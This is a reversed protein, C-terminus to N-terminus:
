QQGRLFNNGGTLQPGTEYGQEQGFNQPNQPYTNPPAPMNPSVPYNAMGGSPPITPTKGDNTKSGSRLLHVALIAEGAATVGFTFAEYWTKDPMQGALYGAMSLIIGIIFVMVQVALGDLDKWIHSRIFGVIGVLIGAFLSQDLFYKQLNVPIGFLTQAFSLGSSLLLLFVLSFMLVTPKTQVKGRSLLPTIFGATYGATIVFLYIISLWNLLFLTFQM